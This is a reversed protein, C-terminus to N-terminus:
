AQSASTSARMASCLTESRAASNGHFQFLARQMASAAQARPRRWSQSRPEVCSWIKNHRSPGRTHCYCRGDLSAVVEDRNM